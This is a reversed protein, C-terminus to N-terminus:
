KMISCRLLIIANVAAPHTRFTSLLAMGLLARELIIIEHLLVM